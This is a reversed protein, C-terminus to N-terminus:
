ALINGLQDFKGNNAREGTFNRFFEFLQFLICLINVTCIDANQWSKLKFRRSNEM